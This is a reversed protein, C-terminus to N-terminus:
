ESDKGPEDDGQGADQETAPVGDAAIDIDEDEDEEVAARTAVISAITFDRDDITPKAGKPLTIDSINISDGIELKSVDVEISDPIDGAPVSLEIAYRVVNLTGDEKLGPSEEEGVFTVPVEVDIITKNTVRFFDVHTPMDTVPHFDVDKTFVKQPKGDHVLEVMSNLFTGSNIAKIVENFRLAISVSPEDGGYLVGPVNGERRSQRAAGTGTTERVTVDLKLNQSM